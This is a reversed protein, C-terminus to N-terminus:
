IDSKFGPLDKVELAFSYGNYLHCSNFAIQSDDHNFGAYHPYESFNGIDAVVELDANYVHHRTGQTGFAILSGDRSIAGHPM